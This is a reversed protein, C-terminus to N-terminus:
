PAPQSPSPVPTSATPTASMLKYGGSYCSVIASTATMIAWSLQKMEDDGNRSNAFAAGCFIFSIWAGLKWQLRLVLLNYYPPHYPFLNTIARLQVKMSFAIAGVVLSITSYNDSLSRPYTVPERLFSHVERPRRPDGQVASM